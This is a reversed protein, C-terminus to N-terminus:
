SHYRDRFRSAGKRLIARVWCQHYNENQEKRHALHKARSFFYLSPNSRQVFFSNLFAESWKSVRYSWSLHIKFSCTWILFWRNEFEKEIYCFSLVLKL